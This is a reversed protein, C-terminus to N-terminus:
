NSTMDGIPYANTGDYWFAQVSKKGAGPDISNPNKVNTPWVFTRSGVGDQTIAFIIVQGAQAGSLSSSTVNGTLAIDFSSAIAANFNPTASFTVVVRPAIMAGTFSAVPLVMVNPYLTGSYPASPGVIWTSSLLLTGTGNPGTFLQATYFTGGPTLEANGLVQTGAALNGNVDLNLFYVATSAGGGVIITAAPNSLTLIVSGNAVPVGGSQFNGGQLTFM